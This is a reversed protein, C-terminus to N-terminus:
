APKDAEVVLTEFKVHELEDGQGHRELNSLARHRSEGYAVRRVDVFGQAELLAKLCEFDYIFQHGWGHFQQNIAFAPLEGAAWSVHTRVQWSTYAAEPSGPAARVLNCVKALDPTALRLHGGPRLVRACEAVMAAAAPFPLHEIMHEGFVAYFASDPLPFPRSANLYCSGPLPQRDTNLWGDLQNPGCGLNLKPEDTERLYRGMARSPGRRARTDRGLRVLRRAAVRPLEAPQQLLGM